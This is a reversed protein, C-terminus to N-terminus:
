EVDEMKSRVFGFIFWDFTYILFGGHVLMICSTDARVILGEMSKGVKYVELWKRM